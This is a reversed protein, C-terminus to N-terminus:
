TINISTNYYPLMQDEHAWMRHGNIGNFMFCELGFLRHKTELLQLEACFCVGGKLNCVCM